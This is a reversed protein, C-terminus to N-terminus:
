ASRRKGIMLFGCAAAALLFGWFMLSSSDGTQPLNNIVSQSPIEIEPQKPQEPKEEPQVPTEVVCNLFAATHAPKNDSITGQYEAAQTNNVTILYGDVTKEKVTFATNLPLGMIEASEGDGLVITMTGSKKNGFSLSRDLKGNLLVYVGDLSKPATAEVIFTFTEGHNKSGRIQKTIKLSGPGHINTVYGVSSNVLVAKGATVTVAYITPDLGYHAPPTTERVYYTGPTLEGSYGAGKEGESGTVMDYLPKTCDPDAFVTYVAGNLTKSPDDTDAKIVKISGTTPVVPKDEIYTNVFTVSNAAAGNAKIVSESLLLNDKQTVTVTVTYVTTDHTYPAGAAPANETITYVYTGPKTFTVKGFEAYGNGRITVTKESPMPTGQAASLVFTFKDAVGEPANKVIKQASLKLSANSIAPGTYPYRHGEANGEYNKCVITGNINGTNMKVSAEPAIIHGIWNYAPMNLNLSTSGPINWIICTGDDNENGVTPQKHQDLRYASSLSDAFWIQKMNLTSVDPIINVVTQVKQSKDGYFVLRPEWEGYYKALSSAKITVTSGIEIPVIALGLSRDPEVYMGNTLANASFSDFVERAKTFDFFTKGAPVEYAPTYVPGFATNFMGTPRGNVQVQGYPHTVSNNKASVYLPYMANPHNQQNYTGTFKGHIYSVPPTASDAIAGANVDGQAIVGGVLHVGSTIDGFAVFNYGNLLDEMTYDYYDDWTLTAPDPAALGAAAISLMVVLMMLLLSRKFGTLTTFM